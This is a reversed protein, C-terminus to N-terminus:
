ITTQTNVNNEPVAFSPYFFFFDCINNRSTNARIGCKSTYVSQSSLRAAFYHKFKKHFFHSTIPVVFARLFTLEFRNEKGIIIKKFLFFYLLGIRGHSIVNKHMSMNSRKRM